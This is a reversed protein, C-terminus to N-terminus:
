DKLTEFSLSFYLDLLSLPVKPRILRGPSLGISVFSTLAALLFTSLLFLCSSQSIGGLSMLLNSLFGNRRIFVITGPAWDRSLNANTARLLPYLARTTFFLLWWERYMRGRCYLLGIGSVSGELIEVNGVANAM